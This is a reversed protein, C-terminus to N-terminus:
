AVEKGGAQPMDYRTSKKIAEQLKARAAPDAVHEVAERAAALLEPANVILAGNWLKDPGLLECIATDGNTEHPGPYDFCPHVYGRYIRWPGKTHAM